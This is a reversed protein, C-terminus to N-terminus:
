QARAGLAAAYDKVEQPANLDAAAAQLRQEDLARLAIARKTELDEVALEDATPARPEEPPPQLEYSEGTRALEEVWDEERPAPVGVTRAHAARAAEFADVRAVLQESTGIVQTRMITKM